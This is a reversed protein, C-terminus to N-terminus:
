KMVQDILQDDHIGYPDPLPEGDIKLKGFYSKQSEYDLDVTYQSAQNRSM